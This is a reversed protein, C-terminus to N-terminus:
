INSTTRYDSDRYTAYPSKSFSISISPPYVSISIGSVKSAYHAYAGQSELYSLRGLHKLAVRAAGKYTYNKSGSPGVPSTAGSAYESLNFEPIKVAHGMSVYDNQTFGRTSMSVTQTSSNRKYLSYRSKDNEGYDMLTMEGSWSIGADDTYLSTAMPEWKWEVYVTSYTYNNPHYDLKEIVTQITLKSAARLLEADTSDPNKLIAIQEDSYGYGQLEEISLNGRERLLTQYSTNKISQIDDQSYGKKALTATSQSRLQNYLDYENYTTSTADAMVEKAPAEVPELYNQSELDEAFVNMSISLCFIFVMGILVIKKKM